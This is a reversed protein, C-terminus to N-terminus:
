GHAAIRDNWLDFQRFGDDMYKDVGRCSPIFKKHIIHFCTTNAPINRFTDRM